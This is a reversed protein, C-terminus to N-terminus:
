SVIAQVGIGDVVVLRVGRDRLMDYGDVVKLRWGM